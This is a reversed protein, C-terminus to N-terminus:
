EGRGQQRNQLSPRSALWAEADEVRILTRRGVKIAPLYRAGIEAYAHTRGISYRACFEAITLARKANRHEIGVTRADRRPNVNATGSSASRKDRGLKRVVNM